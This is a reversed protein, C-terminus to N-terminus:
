ISRPTTWINSSSQGAQGFENAGFAYLGGVDTLLLSHNGGAAIEVVRNGGLGSLNIPTAVLTSGFTTNLGTQGSSNSGFSLVSGDDALLLNHNFGAAIKEIIKGATAIPTPISTEGSSIGLGTAGSINRGMSAVTGDQMLMYVIFCALLFM